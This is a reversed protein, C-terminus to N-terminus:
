HKDKKKMCIKNKIFGIDNFRKIKEKTIMNTNYATQILFTVSLCM